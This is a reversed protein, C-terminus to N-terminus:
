RADGGVTALVGDAWHEVSHHAAVYERLEPRRRRDLSQLRLALSAPDDTEFRLDETLLDDFGRNSTLVPLCAAAAEYVVKDRAGARTNNILVHSRAFLAPVEARPVPGHLVADVGLERILRELDRKHDDYVGNGTSGYAELRVDGAIAIGRLIAELGKV